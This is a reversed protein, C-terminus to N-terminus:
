TRPGPLFNLRPRLDGLQNMASPLKSGLVTYNWLRHSRGWNYWAAPLSLVLRDLHVLFGQHGLM